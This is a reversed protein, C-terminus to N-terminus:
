EECLRKRIDLDGPSIRSICVLTFQAEGSSRSADIVPFVRGQDGDVTIVYRRPLVDDKGYSASNPWASAITGAALRIEQNQKAWEILARSEREKAQRAYALDPQGSACVKARKQSFAQEIEPAAARAQRELEEKDKVLKAKLEDLGAYMQAVQEEGRETKPGGRYRNPASRDWEIVRDITRDLRSVDQFAFNNIPVGVTMLMGSLLLGGDEKDFIAQYRARLQAAYFWFVADEKRGHQFLTLAAQFLNSPRDANSPDRLIEEVARLAVESDCSKMRDQASPITPDSPKRDAAMALVLKHREVRAGVDNGCVGTGPIAILCMAVSLSRLLSATMVDERTKSTRALM